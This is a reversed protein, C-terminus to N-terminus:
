NESPLTIFLETDTSRVPLKRLPLAAPGRIVAGHENFRSGHLACTFVEGDFTLPNSAHTCRLLFAEFDGVASKEIAINYEYEGPEVILIPTNTLLSRPITVTRDKVIASYVPLTSCSELTEALIGSGALLCLSCSKKIFERREM